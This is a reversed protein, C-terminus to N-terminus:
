CCERKCIFKSTKQRKIEKRVPVWEKKAIKKERKLKLREQNEVRM